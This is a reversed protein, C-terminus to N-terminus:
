RRYATFASMGIAPPEGGEPADGDPPGFFDVLQGRLAGGPFEETHVNVYHGSPDAQLDQVLAPDVDELLFTGVFFGVDEIETQPLVLQQVVDGNEGEAGQHIHGAIAETGDAFNYGILYTLRTQDDADAILVAFGFGDVQVPPVEESGELFAFGIIDANFLQGRIAGAPFTATHFNVYYDAPNALIDAVLAPDVDFACSALFGDESPPMLPVVVDGAEGASGDHIHAGTIPEDIGYVTGEFCFADPASTPKLIFQANALDQGPGPVESAGSM